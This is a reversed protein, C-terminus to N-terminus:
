LKLLCFDLCVIKEPDVYPNYGGGVLFAAGHDQFAIWETM